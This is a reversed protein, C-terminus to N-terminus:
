ALRPSGVSKRVYFAALIFVVSLASLAVQILQGPTVAMLALVGAIGGIVAYSLWPFLWMKLRLKEGSAEIGQRM